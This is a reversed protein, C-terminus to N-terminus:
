RGAEAPDERPTVNRAVEPPRAAIVDLPQVPGKVRVIQLLRDGVVDLPLRAGRPLMRWPTAIHGLIPQQPVKKPRLGLVPRRWGSPSRPVIVAEAWRMTVYAAM